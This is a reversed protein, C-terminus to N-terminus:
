SNPSFIKNFSSFFVNHDSTMHAYVYVTFRSQLLYNQVSIVHIVILNYVNHRPTDNITDYRIMSNRFTNPLQKISDELIVCTSLFTLYKNKQIKYHNLTQLPNRSKISLAAVKQVRDQAM